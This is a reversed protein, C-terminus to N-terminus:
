FHRFGRASINMAAGSGDLFRVVAGDSGELAVHGIAAVPTASEEAAVLLKDVDAQAVSFALEYDDGGGFVDSWIREDRTMCGHMAQSLPIKSVDIVIEVGSERALHELDQGLGDSIDIAASALGALRAGLRTRASPRRYRGILYEADETGAPAVKHQLVKLGLAADGITGSVFIVDGPRCGSRTLAKGAPVEGFATLSLTMPGPTSVTDGGILCIGAASQAAGLGAAFDAVWDEGTAHPFATALTYAVPRAGMAAVDSLNVALIKHAVSAAPDDALFHVNAVMCDTTVVIECGDAARWVAADNALGFAGPAGASLPAFHRKILDFESQLAM